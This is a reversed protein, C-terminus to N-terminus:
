ISGGYCQQMTHLLTHVQDNHYQSPTQAEHLVQHSCEQCCHINNLKYKKTKTIIYHRYNAPTISCKVSYKKDTVIQEEM